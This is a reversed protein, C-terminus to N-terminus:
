WAEDFYTKKFIVIKFNETLRRILILLWKRSAERNCGVKWFYIVKDESSDDSNTYPMKQIQKSGGVGGGNGAKPLTNSNGARLSGSNAMTPSSGTRQHLSPDASPFSTYQFTSFLKALRASFFWRSGCKALKNLVLKVSIWKLWFLKWCNDVLCLNVMNWM